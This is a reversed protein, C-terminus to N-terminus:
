LTGSVGPRPTLPCPSCGPFLQSSLPVGCCLTCSCCLIICGWNSQPSLTWGALHSNPEWGAQTVGLCCGAWRAPAPLLSSGCGQLEAFTFCSRTHPDQWPAAQVPVEPSGPVAAM